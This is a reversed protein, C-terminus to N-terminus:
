IHLIHTHIMEELEEKPKHISIKIKNNNNNIIFLEILNDVLLKNFEPYNSTETKNTTRYTTCSIKYMYDHPPTEPPANYYTYYDLSLTEGLLLLHPAWYTNLTTSIEIRSPTSFIYELRVSLVKQRLYSHPSYTPDDALCFELDYDKHM